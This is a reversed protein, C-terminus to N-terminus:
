GVPNDVDEAAGGVTAPFVAKWLAAQDIGRWRVHDILDLLLGYIVSRQEDSFTDELRRAVSYFPDGPPKPRIHAHVIRFQWELEWGNVHEHRKQEQHHLLALAQECQRLV